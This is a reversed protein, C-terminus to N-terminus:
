ECWSLFQSFRMFSVRGLIAWAEFHTGQRIELGFSDQSLHTADSRNPCGVYM